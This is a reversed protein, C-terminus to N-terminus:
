DDGADAVCPLDIRSSLVNPQPAPNYFVLLKEDRGNFHIPQESILQVDRLQVPSLLRAPGGHRTFAHIYDAHARWVRGDSRQSAEEVPCLHRYSVLEEFIYAERYVYPLAGAAFTWIRPARSRNLAAWHARVDAANRRMAPVFDRAYGAAGQADYEGRTGLGQLSDRYLAHAQFAHLTLVMLACVVAWRSIASQRVRHPADAGRAICALAISAAGLYPAFHRFAFMMHVTAMTAGYALVAALAIHLGGRTRFEEILAAGARGSAMLTAAVYAAMIAVGDIALHEAMYRVNVAIVGLDGTPTKVFFSTPLISGFRVSSYVFWALVPVAAGGAASVAYRFPAKVIAALLMPGAFLVADYRTLVAAGALFGLIVVPRADGPSGSAYVTAMATVIGMLMPTELGAVTWLLMGPAVIVVALLPAEPRELGYRWVALFSAAGVILVSVVKYAPVPDDGMWALVIMLLGHLPSTMASVHEGSNFAWEGLDRANVAYRAVIFADDVTFPFVVISGAVFFAAVLLLVAERLTM